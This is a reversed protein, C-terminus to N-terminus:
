GTLLGAAIGVAVVAVIAASIGVMRWEGARAFGALAGVVRLMPTALVGLIGLWLFGSPRAAALDGALRDLDLAPGADLPSGGNAVLLVTGIAILAMSSYTGAQLLRALGAELAAPPAKRTSM